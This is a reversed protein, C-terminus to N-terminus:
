KCVEQVISFFLVFYLKSKPNEVGNTLILQKTLRKIEFDNMEIGFFSALIIVSYPNRRM